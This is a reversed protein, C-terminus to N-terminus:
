NNSLTPINSTDLAIGLPAALAPLPNKNGKRWMTELSTYMKQDGGMEGSENDTGQTNRSLLIAKREKVKREEEMMGVCVRFQLRQYSSSICLLCFFDGVVGAMNKFLGDQSLLVNRWVLGGTCGRKCREREREREVGNM